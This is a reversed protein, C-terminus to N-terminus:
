KPIAALTHHTRTHTYPRSHAGHTHTHTYTHSRYNPRPPAADFAPVVVVLSIHKPSHSYVLTCHVLSIWISQRNALSHTHTHKYAHSDYFFIANARGSLRMTIAPTSQGIHYRLVRYTRFFAMSVNWTRSHPSACMLWMINGIKSYKALLRLFANM